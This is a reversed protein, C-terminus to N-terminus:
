EAPYWATHPSVEGCAPCQTIEWQYNCAPCLGRTQFTNWVHHCKCPWRAEEVPVWRCEPCRIIGGDQARMPTGQIPPPRRRKMSTELAAPLGGLAAALEIRAFLRLEIDPIRDLLQLADMGLRKGADYLSRRFACTSPWLGKPAQNPSTTDSDERYLELAHDISPGFDGERASEWAARQRDFDRPDGAMFFGGGCIGGSIEAQRRREEALRESEEHLTELGNPYRSAAHALQAHSGILSEALSPDLHRLVHLTEFLVHERSSTIHVDPYGVSTGLDAHDLAGAVIERVVALAEEPALLKWHHQFLNVFSRQLHGLRISGAHGEKRPINHKQLLEADNPARWADIACRFVTLRREDDLQGLLNACYSFPFGYPVNRQVVYDFAAGIHGHSLMISLLTNAHHEIPFRRVAPIERLLEPAIAAAIQQAQEFLIHREQGRLGRIEDLAMEFTIRAEGVDNASQVRAIRMRAMARVSASCREAQRRSQNLLDALM